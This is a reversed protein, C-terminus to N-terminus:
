IMSKFFKEETIEKMNLSELMKKIEEPIDNLKIGRKIKEIEVDVAKPRNVKECFEAFTINHGKKKLLCEITIQLLYGLICILIHAKVREEKQHYFPRIEIFGKLYSFAVEVKRRQRYSSVLFSAPKEEPLNSLICYIGDSLKLSELKDQKIQYDIKYTTIVKKKMRKRKPILKITFLNETKRKKLYAYIKKNLLQKNKSKKASALEKNWRELYTTISALKKKRQKREELFKEPNFCLVYRRNKEKNLEHFYARPLFYTFYSYKKMVETLDPNKKGSEKELEEGLKVLLEKPFDPLKKVSSRPITVIYSFGEKELFKLNDESVMGKDMVLYCDKINFQRKKLSVAAEKVTVSDHLGGPLVKWYFPFGEKTVALALLIQPRDKRHDRSLGFEGLPCSWGEFYSSTIDYFVLSLDDFQLDKIKKALHNQIKEEKLFLKDLTRYIRTPNVVDATVKFLTPLITREYWTCVKFDSSPSIARNIALIESMVSTSVKLIQGSDTVKDLEWLHWLKDLIIPMLFEYSQRAKIQQWSTFFADEPIKKLSLLLKIQKVQNPTLQGLNQIVKHRAKKRKKDWFAKIVVWWSYVKGSKRKTKIERLFAM